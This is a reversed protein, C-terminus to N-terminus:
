SEDYRLDLVRERVWSLYSAFVGGDRGLRVDINNILRHPLADAKKLIMKDVSTYRDDGSQVFVPVPLLPQGRDPVGVGAYQVAACDGHAMQGDDLRLLVAVAEGPM